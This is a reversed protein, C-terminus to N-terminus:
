KHNNSTFTIWIEQTQLPCIFIRSEQVFVKFILVQKTTASVIWLCLLSPFSFCDKVRIEALRVLAPSLIWLLAIIWSWSFQWSLQLVRGEVMEVSQLLAPSLTWSLGTIWSWLFHWHVLLVWDGKWQNTSCYNKHCIDTCSEDQPSGTCKSSCLFGLIQFSCPGSHMHLILVCTGSIYAICIYLYAVPPSWIYIYM